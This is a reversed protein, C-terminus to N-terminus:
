FPEFVTIEHNLDRLEYLIMSSVITWDLQGNACGLAPINVKYTRSIYSLWSSLSELGHQIWEYRSPDRWHDKTAFNVIAPGDEYNYIFLGGPVLFKNNCETKYAEFNEPYRKKFELAIGKGMVGVCNVTNVLIDASHDFLNGSRITIM